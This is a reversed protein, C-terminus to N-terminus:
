PDFRLVEGNSTVYIGHDRATLTFIRDGICGIIERPGGALPVKAIATSDGTLAVYLSGGAVGLGSFMGTHSLERRDGGTKTRAFLRGDPLAQYFASWVVDDGDFGLGYASTNAATDTASDAFDEVSGGGIPVRRVLGGQATTWYLHTGDSALREVGDSSADALLTTSGNVTAARRLELAADLTAFYLATGDTATALIQGNVAGLSELAGGAKAVRFAVGGAVGFVHANGVVLPGEIPGPLTALTQATTGGVPQRSLETSTPTFYFHTADAAFGAQIEVLTPKTAPCATAEDGTDEGDALTQGDGPTPDGSGGGCAALWGLIIAARM